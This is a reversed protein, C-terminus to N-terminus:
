GISLESRNEIVINEEESHLIFVITKTHVKEM